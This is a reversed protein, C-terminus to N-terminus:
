DFWRHVASAGESVSDITEDVVWDAAKSAGAAGLIGGAIGGVVACLVTGPGPAAMTGVVAGSLFASYASAASAALVTGISAGAKGGVFGAGTVVSARYASRTRRVAPEEEFKESDKDWQDTARACFAFANGVHGLAKSTGGLGEYAIESGPRATFRSRTWHMKLFVRGGAAPVYTIPVEQQGYRLRQLAATVHNIRATSAATRAAPAGPADDQAPHDATTM